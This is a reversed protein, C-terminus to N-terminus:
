NAQEIASAMAPRDKVKARSNGGCCTTKPMPASFERCSCFTRMSVPSSLHESTGGPERPREVLGAGMEVSGEEICDSKQVVSEGDM